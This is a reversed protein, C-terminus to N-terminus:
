PPARTEAIASLDATLYRSVDPIGGVHQTRINGNKDIIFTNPLGYAGLQQWLEHSAPSIRLTTLKKEHIVDKLQKADTDSNVITLVV